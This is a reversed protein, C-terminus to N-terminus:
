HFNLLVVKMLFNSLVSLNILKSKVSQTNIQCAYEGSDSLKVSEILLNSENHSKKAFKIRPDQTITMNDFALVDGDKVRLWLINYVGLNRVACPLIVNQGVIATLQMFNSARHTTFPTNTVSFVIQSLITTTPILDFDPEDSSPIKISKEPKEQRKNAKNRNHNSKKRYNNLSTTTEVRNSQVLEILVFCFVIFILIM